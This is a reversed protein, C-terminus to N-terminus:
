KTARIDLDLTIEDLIARDGLGSFFNGSRFKVDFQTRDFTVGKATARVDNRNKTITAPFTLAKTVGKITLDGTVTAKSGRGEVKTIVFKAEPFKPADFFDENKLHNELRTARAGELDTVKISNIDITFNGATLRNGDFVLNGKSVSITGDHGGGAVNKGAWVITSNAADVNYSDLKTSTFATLAVAGAVLMALWSIKMRKMCNHKIKPNIWALSVRNPLQEM